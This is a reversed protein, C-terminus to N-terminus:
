GGEQIFGTMFADAIAQALANASNSNIPSCLMIRSYISAASVTYTHITTDWSAVWDAIELDVGRGCCVLFQSGLYVGDVYGGFASIITSEMTTLTTPYITGWGNHIGTALSVNTTGNLVISTSFGGEVNLPIALSTKLATIGPSPM